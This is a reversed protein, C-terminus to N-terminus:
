TPHCAPSHSFLWSRDYIPNVRETKSFSAFLVAESSLPFERLTAEYKQAAQEYKGHEELTRADALAGQLPGSMAPSAALSATSFFIGAFLLLIVAEFSSLWSQTARAEERVWHGPQHIPPPLLRPRRNSQTQARKMAKSFRCESESLGSPFDVEPHIEIEKNGVRSIETISALCM